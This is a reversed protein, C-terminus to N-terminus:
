HLNLLMFKVRVVLASGCRRGHCNAPNYTSQLVLGDLSCLRFSHTRRHTNRSIEIDSLDTPSGIIVQEEVTLWNQALFESFRPSRADQPGSWSLGVRFERSVSTVSNDM